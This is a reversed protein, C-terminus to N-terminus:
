SHVYVKKNWFTVFISITNNFPYVFTFPKNVHNDFLCFRPLLMQIFFPLLCAIVVSCPRRFCFVFIVIFLKNVNISIGRLCLCEAELANM